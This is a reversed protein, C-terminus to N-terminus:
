LSTRDSGGGGEGVAQGKEQGQALQGGGALEQGGEARGELLVEGSAPMSARRLSLAPGVGM